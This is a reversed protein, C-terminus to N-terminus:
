RCLRTAIQFSMQGPTISTIETWSKYPNRDIGSISQEYVAVKSRTCDIRGVHNATVGEGSMFTPYEYINAGIKKVYSPAYYRKYSKGNESYPELEVWAGFNINGNEIPSSSTLIDKTAEEPTLLKPGAQGKTAKVLQSFAEIEQKFKIAANVNIFSIVISDKKGSDSLYSLTFEQREAMLLNRKCVGFVNCTRESKDIGSWGALRAAPILTSDVNIGEDGFSVTCRTGGGEGCLAQHSSWAKVPSCLWLIFVLSSSTYTLVLYTFDWPSAKLKFKSLVTM